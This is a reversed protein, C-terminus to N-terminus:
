NSKEENLEQYKKLVDPYESFLRHVLMIMDDFDLANAERKKQEYMSFLKAITFRRIDTEKISRRYEEVDVLKEKCRSIESLVSKPSFQKDNVGLEKICTTMLKKQDDTDYITFTSERGIRDIHMRLLKACVSHFTGAWIELAGEGLQKELREKMENAAKNTFTISLIRYPSVRDVAFTNLANELITSDVNENQAVNELATIYPELLMNTPIDVLDLARGFKVLHAIRRVLVTTKGSGAGALVLLPGETAYVAERQKENLDKYYIDFLKKRVNIYREKLTM